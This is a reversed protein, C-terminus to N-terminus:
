VGKIEDYIEACLDNFEKRKMGRCIAGAAASRLKERLESYYGGAPPLISVVEAGTKRGLLLLGEDRLMAYVKNVTHLNIGLDAGMQRVSPLKEGPQLAGTAIGEVLQDYLQLYIPVGSAYSICLLM